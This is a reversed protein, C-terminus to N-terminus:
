NSPNRAPRPFNLYLGARASRTVRLGDRRTVDLRAVKYCRDCCAGFFSNM